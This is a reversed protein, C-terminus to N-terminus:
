ENEQKKTPIACGNSGCCGVSFLAMLAFIVGPIIMIYQQTQFSQIIIFVGLILRIARMFNWNTFITKLM